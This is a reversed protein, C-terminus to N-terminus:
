RYHKVMLYKSAKHEKEWNDPTLELMPPVKKGNFLTDVKAPEDEDDDLEPSQAVVLAAAGFLLTLDFFRM